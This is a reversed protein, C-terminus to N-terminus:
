EEDHLRGNKPRLQRIPELFHRLRKGDLGTAAEAHRVTKVRVEVSDTTAPAIAIIRNRDVELEFWDRQDNLSQKLLQRLKLIEQHQNRQTQNAREALQEAIMRQEKAARKHVASRQEIVRIRQQVFQAYAAQQQSKVLWAAILAVMTTAWLIDRISFKM